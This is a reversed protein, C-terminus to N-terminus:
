EVCRKNNRAQSKVKGYLLVLFPCLIGLIALGPGIEVLIQSTIIQGVINKRPIFGFSRSDKSVPRNDGLVFYEGSPVKVTESAPNYEVTVYPETLRVSNVSVSNSALVISDGPLGIIRKVLLRKSDTPDHFFVVDGRVPGHSLYADKNVLIDQGNSLTDQMGNGSIQYRPLIDVFVLFLSWTVITVIIVAVIQNQLWARKLNQSRGEQENVWWSTPMRNGNRGIHGHSQCVCTYM